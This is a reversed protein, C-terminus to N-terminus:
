GTKRANWWQVFKASGAPYADVYAACIRERARGECWGRSVMQALLGPCDPLLGNGRLLVFTAEIPQGFTDHERFIWEGSVVRECTRPVFFTPVGM